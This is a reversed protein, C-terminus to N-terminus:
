TTLQTVASTSLLRSDSNGGVTIQGETPAIESARVVIFHQSFFLFCLVFYHFTSCGNM